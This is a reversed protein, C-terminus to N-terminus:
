DLILGLYWGGFRDASMLFFSCVCVFLLVLAHRRFFLYEPRAKHTLYNTLVLIPFILYTAFTASLLVEGYTVPFVDISLNKERAMKYLSDNYPVQGFTKLVSFYSYTAVVFYLVPMSLLAYYIIKFVLNISKVM